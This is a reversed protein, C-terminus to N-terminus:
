PLIDYLIAHFTPPPFSQRIQRDDMSEGFNQWEFIKLANIHLPVSAIRWLKGM